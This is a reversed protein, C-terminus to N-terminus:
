DPINLAKKVENYNSWDLSNASRGGPITGKSIIYRYQWYKQGGVTYTSYDDDAQFNIQGKSLLVLISYGYPLLLVTPAAATGVNVYVRVDGKHLISDTIGPASISQKFYYITDGATNTVAQFQPVDLWASYTMNAIGTDGKPGTDGKKCGTNTTSFLITFAIVGVISFTTFVHKM